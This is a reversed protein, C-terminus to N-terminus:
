KQNWINHYMNMQNKRKKFSGPIISDAHYYPILRFPEVLPEYYHVKTEQSVSKSAKKVLTAAAPNMPIQLAVRHGDEFM